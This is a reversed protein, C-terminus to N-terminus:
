GAVFLAMGLAYVIGIAVLLRRVWVPPSGTREGARARIALYLWGAFFVGGVFLMQSRGSETGPGPVLTMSSVGLIALLTMAACMLSTIFLTRM